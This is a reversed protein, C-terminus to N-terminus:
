KRLARPQARTWVWKPRRAEPEEEVHIEPRPRPGAYHVSLHYARNVSVHLTTSLKARRRVCDSESPRPPANRLPARATYLVTDICVCISISLYISLYSTSCDRGCGTGARGASAQMYAHARAVEPRGQVTSRRPSAHVALIAASELNQQPAGTRAPVGAREWLEGARLM